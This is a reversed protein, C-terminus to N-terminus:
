PRAGRWVRGTSDPDSRMTGSMAGGSVRGAFRLPAHGDSRETLHFELSDGVLRAAALTVTRGDASATGGLDQHRQTFRVRFRRQEADDPVTLEWTGAVDAPIVWAKVSSTTGTPWRVEVSTDPRWDGMPFNHSVVRAGPRVERLIKPLLRENLSPSLYLAVVTATGLDTEFMDAHRFEIRDRVGAAEANRQGAAILSTDIDVCVGRAGYDRAAAIVIRGDGCGLDYVVDDADVRVIGLMREVVDNASALFIVDPGRRSGCATVLLTILWLPRLSRV